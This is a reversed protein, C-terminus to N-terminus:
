KINGISVLVKKTSQFKMKTKLIITFITIICLMRILVAPLLATFTESFEFSARLVMLSVDKWMQRLRTGFSQEKKIVETM